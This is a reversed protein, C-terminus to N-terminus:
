RRHEPKSSGHGGVPQWGYPVVRRLLDAHELPRYSGFGVPGGDLGYRSVPWPGHRALAVVRCDLPGGLLLARLREDVWPGTTRDWHEVSRHGAPLHCRHVTRTMTTLDLVTEHQQCVAPGQHTRHGHGSGHPPDYAARPGGTV